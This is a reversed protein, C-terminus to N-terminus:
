VGGQSWYGGFDSVGYPLGLQGALSAYMQPPSVNQWLFSASAEMRSATLLPWPELILCQQERREVERRAKSRLAYAKTAHWMLPHEVMMPVDLALMLTKLPSM